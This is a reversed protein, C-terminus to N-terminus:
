AKYYQRNCFWGERKGAGLTASSGALVRPSPVM